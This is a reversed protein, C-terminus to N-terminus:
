VPSLLRENPMLRGVMSVLVISLAAVSAVSAGVVPLYYPPSAVAVAAITVVTPALGVVPTLGVPSTMGARPSSLATWYMGVTAAFAVSAYSMPISYLALAEALRASIPHGLAHYVTLSVALTPAIVLTVLVVSAVLVNAFLRRPSIGYAILYELVGKVRDSTFVMVAGMGAVVSFMPLILPVASSFGGSFSLLTTLVISYGGGVLLYVRGTFAARRVTAGLLSPPGEISAGAAM